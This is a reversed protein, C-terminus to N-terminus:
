KLELLRQANSGLVQQATGPPLADEVRKRSRAQSLLPFDSGFLVREAGILSVVRDYVGPEYLLSSAATDVSTRGLAQKVEPMLAYFPLGGGWHAGIVRVDPHEQIFAYFAGIELGEKGPYAHGAPESVHFLLMAGLEAALRGLRRGPEGRLDFGLNDPRLEGFGQAGAEVCRRMESEVADFGAALPLTCFPVIRGEAVAAAELLYDNHHACAAADTWAFGLAVSVDIGAGVMSSMLDSATALLAKPNAYLEAFTADTALWAEREDAIEPPFIHTHFDVIV